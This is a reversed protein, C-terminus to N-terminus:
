RSVMALKVSFMTDYGGEDSVSALTYSPMKSM